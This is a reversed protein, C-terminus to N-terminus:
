LVPKPGEPQLPLLITATTGSQAHLCASAFRASYRHHTGASCLRLEGDYREVLARVLSLGLGSGPRGRAVDARAFRNAAAPLFARDVGDGADSVTLRAVGDTGEVNVSVCGGGHILANEVLNTLVQRVQPEPMAVRLGHRGGDRHAVRRVPAHYNEASGAYELAVEDTVAALDCGTTATTTLDDATSIRLLQDALAALTAVDRGLERLTSEYESGCRPRQLALQVRTSLLTLPTRLEHSADQTFRRERDLAHELADLVENLTHGLRTVEDDRDHPVDLRVGTAGAAISVAQSRYREVPALAAKALREGVVSSVVLAGLGAVLLQALLERLAEDREDRREAVVLARAPEIGSLPVAFLRLPRRSIPLLAGVDAFLPGDLAARAQRLSLLSQGRVDTGASLVVGRSDLVQYHRVGPLRDLGPDARLTGRATVLPALAAAEARLDNNLRLDLAYSVRWYVFGGAGALVLTIAVVFGAVLRARLPLRRAAGRWLPAAAARGSGSM